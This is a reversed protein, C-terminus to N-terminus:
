DLQYSVPVEIWLEQQSIATPFPPYTASSKAANMASDDLLKYGSSKKVAADLLEGRYSLKLNLRATGQFGAARAQQPYIVNEM